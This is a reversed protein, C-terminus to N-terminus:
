LGGNTTGILPDVWEFGSKSANQARALAACVLLGIQRFLAGM